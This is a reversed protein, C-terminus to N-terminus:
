IKTKQTIVSVLIATILAEQAMITEKLKNVEDNSM